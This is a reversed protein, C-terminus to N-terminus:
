LLEVAPLPDGPDGVAQDAAGLSIGATTPKVFPMPRLQTALALSIATFGM